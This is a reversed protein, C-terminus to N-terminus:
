NQSVVFEQSKPLEIFTTTNFMGLWMTKRGEISTSSGEITIM